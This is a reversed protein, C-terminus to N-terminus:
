SEDEDMSGGNAHDDHSAHPSVQPIQDAAQGEVRVKIRYAKTAPFMELFGHIHDPARCWIQSRVPGLRNLSEEDVSIPKGILQRFALMIDGNWMLPAVDDMLVCTDMLAGFSRVDNGAEKVSIMLQNLPLTFSTSKSLMRLSEQSPFVVGFETESIQQLQWDWGELGWECLEDSIMQLSVNNSQVSIIAANRITPTAVVVDQGGDM